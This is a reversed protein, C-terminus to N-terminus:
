RKNEAVAHKQLEPHLVSIMKQKAEPLDVDEKLKDKLM